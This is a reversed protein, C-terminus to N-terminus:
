ELLRLAIDLARTLAAPRRDLPVASWTRVADVYFGERLYDNGVAFARIDPDRLLRTLRDVRMRCAERRAADVVHFDQHAVRVDGHWLEIGYRSGPDLDPVADPYPVHIPDADARLELSFVRVQDEVRYLVLRLHEGDTRATLTPRTEIIHGRIGIGFRGDTENSRLTSLDPFEGEALPLFGLESAPLDLGRAPDADGAAFRAVALLRATELAGPKGPDWAQELVLCAQDAHGEALLSQGRALPDSEGPRTLWSALPVLGLILIAAAAAAAVPRWRRRPRALSREFAVAEQLSPEDQLAALFAARRAPLLTGRAFAAIDNADFGHSEAVEHAPSQARFHSRLLAEVWSAGDKREHDARDARHDM